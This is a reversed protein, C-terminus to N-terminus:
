PARYTRAAKEGKKRQKRRANYCNCSLQLTRRTVLFLRENDGGGGNDDDDVDDDVRDVFFFPWLGSGAELM